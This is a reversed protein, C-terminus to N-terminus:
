ALGRIVEDLGAGAPVMPYVNEDEDVIFDIIVPGDHIDKAKELAPRVDETHEVRIGTAGFAQALLAFDPNDHYDVASYRKQYFLEQWQRVMGLYMNNIIFIKIPLKLTVAPVLEQITMIFSGDGNVNVITKEPCGLQAGITAPLSFGMTGLGGSNLWQRPQTFNFYQAAWMQHQGVDGAVIADPYTEYIQEIVYQPM